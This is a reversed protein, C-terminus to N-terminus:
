RRAMHPLSIFSPLSLSLSSLCSGVKENLGPDVESIVIGVDPYAASVARIGEPAAALREVLVCARPPRQLPLTLTLTLPVPTRARTSTATGILTLFLIKEEKVGHDLLV